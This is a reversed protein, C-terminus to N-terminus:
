DEGASHEDRRRVWEKFYDRFNRPKAPMSFIERMAVAPTEHGDLVLRTHWLIPLNWAIRWDEEFIDDGSRASPAISYDRKRDGLVRQAIDYYAYTANWGEITDIIDEQVLRKLDTRSPSPRGAQMAEAHIRAALYGARQNRSDPSTLTTHLDGWFEPTNFNELRIHHPVLRIRPGIAHRVTGEDVYERVMSYLALMEWQARPMFGGLLNAYTQLNSKAQDLFRAMGFAIALYNKAPGAVEAIRSDDETRPDVRLNGVNLYGAVASAYGERQQRPLNEAITLTATTLSGARLEKGITGGALYLVPTEPSVYHRVKETPTLISGDSYSLGKTLVVIPPPTGTATYPALRSAVDLGQSSVALLILDPQEVLGELGDTGSQYTIFENFRADTIDARIYRRKTNESVSAPDQQYAALAAIREPNRDWLTVHAGRGAYAVGLHRVFTQGFDGAGVVLVHKYPVGRM